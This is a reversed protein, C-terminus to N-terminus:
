EIGTACFTLPSLDLIGKGNSHLLPSDINCKRRMLMCLGLKWKGTVKRRMKREIFSRRRGQFCIMSDKEKWNSKGLMHRLSGVCWMGGRNSEAEMGMEQNGTLHVRIGIPRQLIRRSRFESFIREKKRKQDSLSIKEPVLCFIHTYGILCSLLFSM